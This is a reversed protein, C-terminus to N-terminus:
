SLPGRQNPTEFWNSQTRNVCLLGMVCGLGQNDDRSRFDVKQQSPLQEVGCDSVDIRFLSLLQAATKRGDLVHNRREM